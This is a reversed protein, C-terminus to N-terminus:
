LKRMLNAFWRAVHYVSSINIAIDRSNLLMLVDDVTEANALVTIQYIALSYRPSLFVELSM